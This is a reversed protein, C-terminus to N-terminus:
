GRISKLYRNVRHEAFLILMLMIGAELLFGTGLGLYFPLEDWNFLVLVAAIGVLITIIKYFLLSNAMRSIRQFEAQTFLIPDSNLLAIIDQNSRAYTNFGIFLQFIAILLLAIALGHHFVDNINLLGNIAIAIAILGMAILLLSEVKEATFFREMERKM